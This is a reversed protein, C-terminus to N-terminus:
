GREYNLESINNLREPVITHEEQGNQVLRIIWYYTAIILVNGSL